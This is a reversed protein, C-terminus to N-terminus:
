ASFENYFNSYSLVDLRDPSRDGGSALLQAQEDLDGDPLEM